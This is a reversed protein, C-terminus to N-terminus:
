LLLRCSFLQHTNLISKVWTLIQSTSGVQPSALLKPLVSALDAPFGLVILAGQSGYEGAARLIVALLAHMANGDVVEATAEQQGDQDQHAADSEAHQIETDESQVSSNSTEVNSNSSSNSSSSKIPSGSSSVASTLVSPLAELLSALMKHQLARLPEPLSGYTASTSGGEQSAKVEAATEIESQHHMASAALEATTTSSHDPQAAAQPTSGVQPGLATSLLRLIATRQELTAKPNLLHQWLLTHLPFDPATLQSM